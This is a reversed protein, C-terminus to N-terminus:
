SARACYHNDALKRADLNADRSVTWIVESKADKESVALM